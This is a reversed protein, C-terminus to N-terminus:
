SGVPVDGGVNSGSVLSGTLTDGDPRAEHQDTAADEIPKARRERMECVLGIPDPRHIMERAADIRRRPAIQALVIRETGTRGADTDASPGHILSECAPSCM